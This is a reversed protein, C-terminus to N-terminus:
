YVNYYVSNQMCLYYIIIIYACKALSFACNHHLFNQEKM